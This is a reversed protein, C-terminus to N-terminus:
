IADRVQLARVCAKLIAVSFTSDRGRGVEFGHIRVVVQCVGPIDGYQQLEFGDYSEMENLIRGVTRWDRVYTFDDKVMGGPHLIEAIAASLEEDTM